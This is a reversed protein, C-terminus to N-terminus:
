RQQGTGGLICVQDYHRLCSQQLEHLRSQSSAFNLTVAQSLLGICEGSPDREFYINISVCGNMASCRSACTGVDYTDMTTFGM